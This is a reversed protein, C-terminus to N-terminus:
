RCSWHTRSVYRSESTTLVNITMNHDKHEEEYIPIPFGTGPEPEYGKLVEVNPPHNYEDETICENTYSHGIGGDPCVYYVTHSRDYTVNPTADAINVVILPYATFMFVFILLSFGGLSKKLM